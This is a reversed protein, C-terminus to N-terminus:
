FAAIMGSGLARRFIQRAAAVAIAERHVASGGSLGSKTRRALPFGSTM